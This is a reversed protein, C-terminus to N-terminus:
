VFLRYKWRWQHPRRIDSHYEHDSDTVINVKMETVVDVDNNREDNLLGVRWISKDRKNGKSGWDVDCNISFHSGENREKKTAPSLIRSYCGNENDFHHYKDINTTTTPTIPCRISRKKYIVGMSSNRFVERPSYCVCVFVLNNYHLILSKCDRSRRETREAGSGTITSYSFRDAGTSINDYDNWWALDEFRSAAKNSYRTLRKIHPLWHERHGCRDSRESSHSYRCATRDQIYSRGHGAYMHFDNRMDGGNESDGPVRIASNNNFHQPYLWM